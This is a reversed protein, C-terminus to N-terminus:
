PHIVNAWMVVMLEQAPYQPDLAKPFSVNEGRTHVGNTLKSIESANSCGRAFFTPMEAEMGTLVLRARARNLVERGCFIGVEM